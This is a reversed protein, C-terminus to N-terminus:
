QTALKFAASLGLITSVQVRNRLPALDGGGQSGRMALHHLQHHRVTSPLNSGSTLDQSLDGMQVSSIPYTLPYGGLCRVSVSWRFWRHM